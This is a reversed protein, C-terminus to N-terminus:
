KSSYYESYCQSCVGDVAFGNPRHCKPCIKSETLWRRGCDTCVLKVEKRMKHSVFTNEGGCKPCQITM